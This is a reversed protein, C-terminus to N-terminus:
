GDQMAHGVVNRGFLRGHGQRQAVTDLPGDDLALGSGAAADHHKTWALLAETADHGGFGGAGVEHNEYAETPILPAKLDTPSEAGFVREDGIPLVHEFLDLLDRRAFPDIRDHIGTRGLRRLHHRQGDLEHLALLTTDDHLADAARDVVERDLTEGALVDRDLRRAAVAVRRDLQGDLADGRALVREVQHTRM